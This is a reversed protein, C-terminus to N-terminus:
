ENGLKSMDEGVARLLQLLALQSEFRKVAFDIEASRSSRRADTVDLSNGTGNEYATEALTLAQAALRSIDGATAVQEM